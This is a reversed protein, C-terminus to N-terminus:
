SSSTNGARGSGAYVGDLSDVFLDVADMLMAFLSGVPTEYGNYASVNLPTVSLCMLIALLLALRKKM